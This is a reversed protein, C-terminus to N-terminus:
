WSGSSLGATVWKDLFTGITLFLHTQCHEKSEKHLAVCVLALLGSVLLLLGNERAGIQKTKRRHVWKNQKRAPVWKKLVARTSSLSLARTYSHLYTSRMVLLGGVGATAEILCFFVEGQWALIYNTLYTSPLFTLM